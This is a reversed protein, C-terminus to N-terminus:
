LSVKDPPHLLYSFFLNIWFQMINYLFFESYVTGLFFYLLFMFNDILGVINLNGYQFWVNVDIQSAYLMLLM